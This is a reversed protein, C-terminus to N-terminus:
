FILRCVKCRTGRVKIILGISGYVLMEAQKKEKITNQIGFEAICCGQVM